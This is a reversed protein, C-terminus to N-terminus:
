FGCALVRVGPPAGTQVQETCVDTGAAVLALTPGAGTAVVMLPELDDEDAGSVEVTTFSWTGSCFPGQDVRLPKDPVGPKGDILTLIQPGTPPGACRGAHSPTPTPSKTTPPTTTATPVTTRQTPPLTPTPYAPYAPYAPGTPTPLPPTGVAPLSPILSSDISIAGASPAAYTPSTPRPQPPEGCAGLLALACLAGSWPLVRTRPSM